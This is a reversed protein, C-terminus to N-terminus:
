HGLLQANSFATVMGLYQLQNYETRPLLSKIEKMNGAIELIQPNKSM